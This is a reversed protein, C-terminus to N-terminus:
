FAYMCTLVDINTNYCPCHIEYEHKWIRLLTVGGGNFPVIKQECRFGGTKITDTPTLMIGQFVRSLERLNFIYHFKAPTPLMKDKMTRWLAITAVTLEKVVKLTEEPVKGAPFRGKLMQGYIDNISVISPLVMNFIFFNRKLRNPIDNKGGGPHQMAAIYQLDECVKFDGRKDKDM